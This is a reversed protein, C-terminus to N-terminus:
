KGVRDHPKNRGHGFAAHAHERADVVGVAGCLHVQRQTRGMMGMTM